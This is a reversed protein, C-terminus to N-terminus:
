HLIGRSQGENVVKIIEGPRKRRDDDLMRRMESITKENADGQVVISTTGDVAVNVGGVKARADAMSKFVPEGRKLIAPIEGPQLGAIGGDHYRPANAFLSASVHRSTSPQGAIGGEHYLGGLIGGTGGINGTSFSGGGFMAGFIGGLGGSSGGFANSFLNNVAMDILKDAIKNLVNTAANGFAEWGKQGQQLNNKFDKLFGSTYGAADKMDSLRQAAQGAADAERQLAAINESTLDIGLRKYENIKTQVLSYSTAAGVSMGFTAMEVNMADVQSHIQDIGLAREQTLRKLNDETAKTVTIGNARALAISNEVQAVQQGVTATQGLVALNQSEIGLRDKLAKLTRSAADAAPDESIGLGSYFDNADRTTMTHGVGSSKARDLLLKLYDNRSPSDKNTAFQKGLAELERQPYSSAVALVARKGGMTFDSWLRNFREDLERAMRLQDDRLGSTASMQRKIADSGQEMLRVYEMTAPLGAEQLIEFKQVDDKANKVLDAVKAFADATDKAAPLGNVRLLGALDGVGRKAEDVQRAFGTMDDLLKSSDVGSTAAVSQLGQIGQGGLGTIRGVDGTKAIERNLDTFTSVLQRVQATIYGVVFRRTMTNALNGASKGTKDQQQELDYLTGALVSITQGYRTNATAGVRRLAEYQAAERGYGQSLLSTKGIMTEYSRVAKIQADTLKGQFGYASQVSKAYKQFGDGTSVASQELEDYQDAAKKAAASLRDLDVVATKASRSDIKLELNASNM